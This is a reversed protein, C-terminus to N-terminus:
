PYKGDRVLHWLVDDIEIVVGMSPKTPTPTRTPTATPTPIVLFTASQISDNAPNMDWGGTQYNYRSIYNIYYEGPAYDAYITYDREKNYGPTPYPPIPPSDIIYGSNVWVGAGTRLQWESYLQSPWEAPGIGFNGWNFHFVIGRQGGYVPTAPVIVEIPKMDVWRTPTPTITPTPTYTSTPVPTPISWEMHYADNDPNQDQESYGTEEPPNSADHEIWVDHTGYDWQSTDIYPYFVYSGIRGVPWEGPSEAPGPVRDQDILVAPNAGFKRLLKIRVGDPQGSGVDFTSTGVNKLYGTIEYLKGGKWEVTMNWAALDNVISPSTPSPTAGKTSTPTPTIPTPTPTYTPTQTPTNTPPPTLTPQAPTPTWTATPSPTPTWTIVKIIASDLQNNASNDDPWNHIARIRWNGPTWTRWYDYFHTEYAGQLFPGFDSDTNILQNAAWNGDPYLYYSVAITSSNIVTQGVNKLRGWYGINNYGQIVEEVVGVQEVAL